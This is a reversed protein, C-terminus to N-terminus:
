LITASIIVVDKLPRDSDDTQVQEIKEITKWGEIVEGFVTYAKDLHPTGGETKYAELVHPPMEKGGAMARLEEELYFQGITIYFQIPDSAQDPNKEDGVRAAAVAGRKHFLTPYCFEAPILHPHKAEVKQYQTGDDGKLAGGAQVMFNRIVRHFLMDDYTGERVVQLFNDRHLPTENYLKITFSGKNTKFKVRAEPQQATLILSGCLTISFLLLLM